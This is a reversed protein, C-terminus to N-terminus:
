NIMIAYNYKISLAHGYFDWLQLLTRNLQKKLFIYKCLQEVKDIVM